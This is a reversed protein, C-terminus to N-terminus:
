SLVQCWEVTDQIFGLMVPYPKVLRQEKL